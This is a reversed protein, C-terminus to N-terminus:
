FELIHEQIAQNAPYSLLPHYVKKIQCPAWMPFSIKM